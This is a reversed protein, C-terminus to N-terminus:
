EKPGKEEGTAQGQARGGDSGQIPASHTSDAELENSEEIAGNEEEGESELEEELVDKWLLEQEGTLPEPPSASLTPPTGRPYPETIWLDYDAVNRSLALLGDKKGDEHWGDMTHMEDVEFLIATALHIADPTKIKHRERITSARDAIRMHPAVEQVNKRRLIDAFKQKQELTLKGLFVETRILTSTVLIAQGIEVLDAVDQIGQWISAPWKSKEATLWTIFVCTDWYIVSRGSKM